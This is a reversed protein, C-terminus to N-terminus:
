SVFTKVFCEFIDCAKDYGATTIVINKADILLEKRSNNPLNSMLNKNTLAENKKNISNKAEACIIEYDLETEISMLKKLDAFWSTEHSATVRQFDLVVFNAPDMKKLCKFVKSHYQSYANLATKINISRRTCLSAVSDSPNRIVFALPISYKAASEIQDYTHLHHAISKISGNYRFMCKAVEYVYTNAARPFGEVVLSTFSKNATLNPYLLQNRLKLAAPPATYKLAFSLERFILASNMATARVFAFHCM